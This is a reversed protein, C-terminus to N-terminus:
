NLPIYGVSVEIDNETDKIKIYPSVQPNDDILINKTKLFHAASDYLYRAYKKDFEMQDPFYSKLIGLKLENDFGVAVQEGVKKGNKDLSDVMPIKFGGLFWHNKKQKDFYTKSAIFISPRKFSLSDDCIYACYEIDKHIALALNAPLTWPTTTFVNFCVPTNYGLNDIFDKVKLLFEDSNQM